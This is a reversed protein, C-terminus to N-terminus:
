EPLTRKYQDILNKITKFKRTDEKGNRYTFKIKESDRLVEVTHIDIRDTLAEYMNEIREQDEFVQLVSELDPYSLLACIRNVTRRVPGKYGKRKRGANSPQMEVAELDFALRSQTATASLM